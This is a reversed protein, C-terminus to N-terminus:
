RRFGATRHIPLLSTRKSDIVKKNGDYWFENYNGVGDAPKTLNNLFRAADKEAYETAEEETLVQKGAYEGPRELPTATAYNWVGQLDPQGDVTRPAKYAKGARAAAPTKASTGAAPAQGAVPVLLGLWAVSAVSLIFPSPLYRHSVSVESVQGQQQTQRFEIV